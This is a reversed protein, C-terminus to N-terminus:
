EGTAMTHIAAMAASADVVLVLSGGDGAPLLMWLGVAGPRLGPLDLSEARIVPEGARCTEWAELYDPYDDLQFTARHDRGVWWDPGHEPSYAEAWGPTVWHYFGGEGVFAVPYGSLQSLM